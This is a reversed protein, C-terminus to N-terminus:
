ITSVGIANGIGTTQFQASLAQALALPYDLANAASVPFKDNSEALLKFRAAQGQDGAFALVQTGPLVYVKIGHHHGVNFWEIMPM